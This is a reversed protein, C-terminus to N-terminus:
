ISNVWDVFSYLESNFFIPVIDSAGDNSLLDSLQQSSYVEIKSRLEGYDSPWESEIKIYDNSGVRILNSDSEIIHSDLFSCGKSSLIYDIYSESYMMKKPNLHFCSHNNLNTNMLQKESPFEIPGGFELTLTSVMEGLFSEAQHSSELGRINLHSLFVTLKEPAIEKKIMAVSSLLDDKTAIYEHGSLVFVCNSKDLDTNRRQHQYLIINEKWKSPVLRYHSKEILIKTHIGQPSPFDTFFKVLGMAGDRAMVFDFFSLKQINKLYFLWMPRLKNIFIKSHPKLVEEFEDDIDGLELWIESRNFKFDQEKDIDKFLNM